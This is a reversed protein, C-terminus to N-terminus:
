QSTKQESSTFNGGCTDLFDIGNEALRAVFTETDCAGRLMWVLVKFCLARMDTM